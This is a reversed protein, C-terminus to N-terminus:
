CGRRYGRGVLMAPQQTERVPSQSRAMPNTSSRVRRVRLRALLGWSGMRAAVGSEPLTDLQGISLVPRAVLRNRSQSARQVAGALGSELDPRRSALAATRRGLTM